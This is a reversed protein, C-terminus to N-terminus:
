KTAPPIRFTATHRIAEYEDGLFSGPTDETYVTEIVYQDDWPLSLSIQGRDDTYLTKFWQDRYGVVVEQEALPEGNFTVKFQIPRERHSSVAKVPTVVLQNKGSVPNSALESGESEGVRVISTSFFNTKLIGLNYERWDVVPAKTVNLAIQYRGTGEPTFEAVFRSGDISNELEFIEGNPKILWLSIEGVMEQHEAINDRIGYAYEGLYVSVEQSKGVEGTPSTEIWLNHASLTQSFLVVLLLLSVTKFVKKSFM